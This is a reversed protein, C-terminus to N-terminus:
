TDQDNGLAAQIDQNASEELPTEPEPTSPPPAPKPFLWSLDFRISWQKGLWNV